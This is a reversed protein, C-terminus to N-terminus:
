RKRRELTVPVGYKPRTTLSIIPKIETGPLVNLRFKQATMALIFVAEMMAFNNGMCIRPGGGFPLYAFVHQKKIAEKEFREPDFYEPKEWFDPHRHLLYPSILVDHGAKMNYNGIKDDKEVHRPLIPVPPYVRLTEKFVKLLYPLKPFDAATPVREGLVQDVEEEVKKRIDRRRSLVSWLWAMANATTEHGAIFVTMVEDRLERDDLFEGTEEDKADLLMQLLDMPKESSARREKIIRFIIQDLKEINEFYAKNKATPLKFIWKFPYLIRKTTEVLLPTFIDAVTQLEEEKLATSFLAKVVVSLTLRMMANAVEITEGKDCRTEWDDLMDKITDTMISTLNNIKKKHFSPQALKRKRAWSKGRATFTSEGLVVSVMKFATSRKTYNDQKVAMMEKVLDPHNVLYMEENLLKFKVVDGYDDLVSQMWDLRNPSIFAFTNGIIPLGNPGTPNITSEKM